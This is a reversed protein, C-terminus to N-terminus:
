EKAAAKRAPRASPNPELRLTYALAGVVKKGKFNDHCLTCKEMVMPLVTAARLYRTGDKTEIEEYYDKGALVQKIA